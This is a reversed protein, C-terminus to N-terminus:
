SVSMSHIIFKRKEGGRFLVMLWFKGSVFVFLILEINKIVLDQVYVLLLVTDICM